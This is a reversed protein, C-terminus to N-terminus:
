LKKNNEVISGKMAVIKNALMKVETYVREYEEDNSIIDEIHWKYKADIDCRNKEM